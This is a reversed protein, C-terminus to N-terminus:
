SINECVQHVAGFQTLAVNRFETRRWPSFVRNLFPQFLWKHWSKGQWLVFCVSALPTCSCVLWFRNPATNARPSSLMLCPGQGAQSGGHSSKSSSLGTSSVLLSSQLLWYLPVTMKAFSLRPSSTKQGRHTIANWQRGHVLAPPFKWLARSTNWFAM